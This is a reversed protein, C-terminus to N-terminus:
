PPPRLVQDAPLPVGSPIVTASGSALVHRVPGAYISVLVIAVFVAIVVGAAIALARLWGPRRSKMLIQRVAIFAEDADERSPFRAVPFFEGKVSTVGLEFDGEEGQMALAFSHNRELDFTWILEPQSNHFAAVLTKGVLKAKVPKKRALM